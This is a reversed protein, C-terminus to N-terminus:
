QRSRQSHRRSRHVAREAWREADDPWPPQGLGVVMMGQPAPPDASVEAMQECRVGVNAPARAPDPGSRSHPRVTPHAPPATGATPTPSKSPPTPSSNPTGAPATSCTIIDLACSYWTPSNPPDATTGSASTTPTPGPRLTSTETPRTGRGAGGFRVHSDGRM